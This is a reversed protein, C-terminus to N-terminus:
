SHGVQFKSEKLPHIIKPKNKSYEGLIPHYLNLLSDRKGELHNIVEGFLYQGAKFGQYKEVYQRSAKGLDNRLDPNTILTRLNNILNKIGEDLTEATNKVLTM